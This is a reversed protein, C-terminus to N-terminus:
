AMFEKITNLIGQEDYGCISQLESITGHTVFSNPIGLRKVKPTYGHESFFEIVATGLGGAIVGDEVTIIK